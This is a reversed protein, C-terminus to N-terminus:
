SNLLKILVEGHCKDPFCWCGLTKGKLSLLESELHETTIKHIIYDEYKKIAGDRGFEKVTYPNCWLSNNKPFRQGDIFVVGKRGIYVNNEDTM